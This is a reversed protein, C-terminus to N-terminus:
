DWFSGLVLLFTNGWGHPVKPTLGALFALGGCALTLLHRYWAAQATNRIEMLETYKQVTKDISM